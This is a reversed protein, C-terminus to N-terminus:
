CDNLTLYTHAWQISFRSEIMGKQFDNQKYTSYYYLDLVSYVLVTSISTKYFETCICTKKFIKQFYFKPCTSVCGGLKTMRIDKQVGNFTATYQVSRKISILLRFYRFYM